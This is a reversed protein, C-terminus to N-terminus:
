EPPVILSASTGPLFALLPPKSPLTPLLKLHQATIKKWCQLGARKKALMEQEGGGGVKAGSIDPRCTTHEPVQLVKM